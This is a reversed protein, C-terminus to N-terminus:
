TKVRRQCLIGAQKESKEMREVRRRDGPCFGQRSCVRGDRHSKTYAGLGARGFGSRSRFRGEDGVGTSLGESKLIGSLAHFVECCGRLGESFCCAGSPAIMFEQIDINNSAHAGGNLINMMPIPLARGSIGGIFQFLELGLSAAAARAAAISVALTANAGLNSKDKTGDEAKMLNDINYIDYPSRGYLAPAIVETINKVAKLVGKGGYRKSDGDRLELAEFEGTSAGSPAAGFGVSSDSLHVEAEVTPNGRSDIIERAEIREIVANKYIHM